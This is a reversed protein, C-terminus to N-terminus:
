VRAVTRMKTTVIVVNRGNHGGVKMLHKDIRSVKLSSFGINLIGHYVAKRKRDM